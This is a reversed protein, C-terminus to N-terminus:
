GDKLMVHSGQIMVQQKLMRARAATIARQLPLDQIEGRCLLARQKIYLDSMGFTHGNKIDTGPKEKATSEPLLM